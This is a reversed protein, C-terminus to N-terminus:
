SLLMRQYRVKEAGQVMQLSFQASTFPASNNIEKQTTLQEKIKSVLNDINVVKNSENKWPIPQVKWESMETGDLKRLERWLNKPDNNFGFHLGEPKLSIDVTKIEGDFLCILVDESIRDRRLITSKQNEEMPKDGTISSESGDIQLDPWGSVVESRMLFGTIQKAKGTLSNNNNDQQADSDQVRGISFAGDLLSEVWFWDLWFFRISEPPLMQEDPVLYNFPINYLLGLQEFWTKIDEPFDNDASNNDQQPFLHPYLAQQNNQALKQANSRKWNFLSTAFKKDQLALLQGLQWAAAYSIDFLGTKKNYSILQDASRISLQSLTLNTPNEGPILPSHYWYFTKGGQRLYHRLPIYGKTFYQDAEPNNQTPLKLTDKNLKKLLGMFSQEGKTCSFNWSKLVVLRIYNKDTADQYNFENNNNYRNELSVLYATSIGDKKPLRNSIVVALPESNETDGTVQRVHALYELDKTTPLIESLLNKPVDIVSVKDDEQQGTELTVGPWKITGTSPQQLKKLTTIKTNGSKALIAEIQEEFGAFESELKESKRKSKEVIIAEDDILEIWGISGSLLHQWLEQKKKKTLEQNQSDSFATELITEKQITRLLNEEEHIVILALWPANQNGSQALREWPLTSSKLAIHPLVHSHDGFSGAPPFVAHIDQPKLEFRNGQVIFTLNSTFTDNINEIQITQQIEIKYEGADLPTQHSQIFQIQGKATTDTVKNSM